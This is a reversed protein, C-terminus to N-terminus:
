LDIWNPLQFTYIEQESIPNVSQPSLKVTDPYEIRIVRSMPILTGNALVLEHEDDQCIVDKVLVHNTVSIGQKIYYTLGLPLGLKLFNGLRELIPSENHNVVRM